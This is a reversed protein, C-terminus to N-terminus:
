CENEKPTLARYAIPYPGFGGVQVDGENKVMGNVVLRQCNHSDMTYAAMGVADPVTERGECNAQTMVYAGVMRRAERIYLQHSFNGNDTYEDKPYGWQQMERRLHEPVRPDNGIFYLLGKTYDEHAGIIKRRTEYDGDPYQYNAGIMDTSFGGCNNIDTKRHPMPQIHMLEWDLKAPTRKQIQRLLLEYRTSDYRAPRTIAIRNPVSDTLCLRFNYAQVSADGSGNPQLPKDGIGWLLGSEPNGPIKYPDIGDPFQHKDLLQVGNYTEAYQNNAERGVTYSVGARAMLDGEYSCDIFQKARVTQNTAPNPKASNELVIEQILGNQKKASVIRHAFLVTVKAERIYDNFIKEAVHPEFTWQELRGYHKGIRRYFDRALGTIAYKNGIDTQGLGGSSLGGLHRGPEILLVSKGLKAATYAAIVGSSTGGYVCIDLQRVPTQRVPAQAFAFPTFLFLLVTRFNM